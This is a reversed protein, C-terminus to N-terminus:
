ELVSDFTGQSAVNFRVGDPVFRERPPGLIRKGDRSNRQDQDLVARM